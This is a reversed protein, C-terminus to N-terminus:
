CNMVTKIQQAAAILQNANASTIANGAQAENIIANMANCANQRNGAYDAWRKWGRTERWM